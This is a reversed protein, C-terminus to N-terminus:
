QEILTDYQDEDRLDMFMGILHSTDSGNMSIIPHEFEVFGMRNYWNVLCSKGNLTIGRIPFINSFAIIQDIFDNLMQSGISKGQLSKNVGISDIHMVTYEAGDDDVELLVFRFSIFGILESEKCVGWFNRTKMISDVDCFNLDSNITSDGCDFHSFDYDKLQSGIKITEFEM